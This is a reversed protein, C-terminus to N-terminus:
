NKIMIIKNIIIHELYTQYKSFLDLNIDNKMTINNLYLEKEVKDSRYKKNENDLIKSTTLKNSSSLSNSSIIKYIYKM